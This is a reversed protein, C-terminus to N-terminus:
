IFLNLGFDDYRVDETYSKLYFLGEGTSRLLAVKFLLPWHFAPEPRQYVSTPSTTIFADRTESFNYFDCGDKHPPRCFGNYCIRIM